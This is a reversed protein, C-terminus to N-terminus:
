LLGPVGDGRRRELHGRVTREECLGYFAGGAWLCKGGPFARMYENGPLMSAPKRAWRMYGLNRFGCSTLMKGEAWFSYGWEKKSVRVSLRGATLVAEEEDEWFGPDCYSEKKEFRPDRRNYGEYHWARVAIVDKAAARFEVTITAMNLTDGRSRIEGVPAVVRMGDATREIRYAQAAYLGNARESRLWYGETFKM